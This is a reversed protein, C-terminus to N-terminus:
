ARLDSVCLRFLVGGYHSEVRSISKAKTTNKYEDVIWSRGLKSGMEADVDFPIKLEPVCNSMIEEIQDIQKASTSNEINFCLEDHVTLM